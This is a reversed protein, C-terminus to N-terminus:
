KNIWDIGKKLKSLTIAEASGPETTHDYKWSAMPPLSMLISETRGGTDLGFKTGKDWVLNFEVYRGRRLFQWEKEQEEFSKSHNLKMLHTYIPAFAEGVEKVFEFLFAKDGEKEDLRDFFIGGVGRTEERHKLYFYDDAWTKFRTYYDVNYKDCVNKLQQHFWEAEEDIIFHPTLDIGGGFWWIGNSMEFYRVNMHIIPVFPNIPHQVISVGTAYFEADSLGLAKLIKEPTPGYVASFNVGGKEIINGDELVRSDGGGGGPREWKDSIFKGKGDTNELAKCINSQLSKFYDAIEEKSLSMM